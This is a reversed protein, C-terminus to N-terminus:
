FMCLMSSSESDARAQKALFLLHDRTLREKELNEILHTSTQELNSPFFGNSEGLLWSAGEALCTVYAIQYHDAHVREPHHHGAVGMVIETPLHWHQFLAAGLISHTMHLMKNERALFEDLTPSSDRIAEYEEKFFRAMLIVGADHVLAALFAMQPDVTWKFRKEMYEAIKRAAFASTISHRWFKKPDVFPSNFADYLSAAHVVNRAEIVGLRTMAMMANDVNSDGRHLVSNATNIMRKSIAPNASIIEGLETMHKHPERWTMEFERLTDPIVPLRGQKHLEALIESSKMPKAM